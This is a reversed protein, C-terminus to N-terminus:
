SRSRWAPRADEVTCAELVDAVGVRRGGAVSDDERLHGVPAGAKHRVWLRHAQPIV